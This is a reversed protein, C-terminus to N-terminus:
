THGVSSSVLETLNMFMTKLATQCEDHKSTFYSCFWLGDWKQLHTWDAWYGWFLTVHIYILVLMWDSVGAGGKTWAGMAAGMWWKKFFESWLTKGIWDGQPYSHSCSSHSYANSERGLTFSSFHHLQTCWCFSSNCSIKYGRCLFVQGCIFLGAGKKGESTKKKGPIISCILWKHLLKNGTFIHKIESNPVLFPTFAPNHKMPFIKKVRFLSVAWHEHRLFFTGATTNNKPIHCAWSRM